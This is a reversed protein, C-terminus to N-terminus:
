VAGILWGALFVLVGGVVVQFIAWFLTLMSWFALLPETSIQGHQFSTLNHVPHGGFFSQHM